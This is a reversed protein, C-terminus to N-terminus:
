KMDVARQEWVAREEEPMAKWKIGLARAVREGAWWKNGIREGEALEDALPCPLRSPHAPSFRRWLHTTHPALTGAVVPVHAMNSCMRDRYRGQGTCLLGSWAPM